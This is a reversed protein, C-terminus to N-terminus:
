GGGHWGDGDVSVVRYVGVGGGSLLRVADSWLCRGLVEGVWWWGARDRSGHGCGGCCVCRRLRRWRLRTGAGERGGCGRGGRVVVRRRGRRLRAIRGCVMYGFRAESTRRRLM